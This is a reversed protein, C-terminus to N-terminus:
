LGRRSMEARIRRRHLERTREDSNDWEFDDERAVLTSTWARAFEYVGSADWGNIVEALIKVVPIEYERVRELYGDRQMEHILRVLTLAQEPRLGRLVAAIESVAERQESEFTRAGGELVPFTALEAM